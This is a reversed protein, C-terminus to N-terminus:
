GFGNQIRIVLLNNFRYPLMLATQQACLRFIFRIELITIENSFTSTFFGNTFASFIVLINKITGLLFLLGNPLRFPFQQGSTIICFEHLSKPKSIYLTFACGTRGDSSKEQEIESAIWSISLSRYVSNVCSTSNSRHLSFQFM